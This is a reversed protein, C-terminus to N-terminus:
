GEYKPAVKFKELWEQVQTDEEVEAELM